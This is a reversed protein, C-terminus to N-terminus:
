THSGHSHTGQYELFRSDPEGIQGLVMMATVEPQVTERSM